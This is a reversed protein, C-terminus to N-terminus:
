FDFFFFDVSVREINEGYSLSVFERLKIGLLSLNKFMYFVRDVFFFDSGYKKM